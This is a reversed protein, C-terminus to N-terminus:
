NSFMMLYWASRSLVLCNFNHHGRCKHSKDTFDTIHLFCRTYWWWWWWRQQRWSLIIYTVRKFIYWVWISHFVWQLIFCVNYWFVLSNWYHSLQKQFNTCNKCHTACHHPKPGNGVTDTYNSDETHHCANISHDLWQPHM